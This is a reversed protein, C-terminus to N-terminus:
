KHDMTPGETMLVVETVPGKKFIRGLVSRGPKYVSLAETNMSPAVADARAVTVINLRPITAVIDAGVTTDADLFKVRSARFELSKSVVIMGATGSNNEHDHKSWFLMGHASVFFMGRASGRNLLADLLATVMTPLVKGALASTGVWYKKLSFIVLATSERTAESSTTTLTMLSTTGEMDAEIEESVTFEPEVNGMVRVAVTSLVLRFTTHDSTVPKIEFKELTMSEANVM